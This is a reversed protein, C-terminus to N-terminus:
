DVKIFHSMVTPVKPNDSILEIMYTGIMLDSIPLNVKEEGIHTKIDKVKKGAADMVILSANDTLGRDLSVIVYESAPNPYVEFSLSSHDKKIFNADIYEQIEVPKTENPAKWEMIEVYATAYGSTRESQSWVIQSLASNDLVEFNLVAITEWNDDKRISLGGGTNDNLDISFNIFGLNDDFELQNVNDAQLQEFSELFNIPSYLDMPLDSRSMDKVLSLLQSDYYLRYNQDALQFVGHGDYSIEVSVYLQNNQDDYFAPNLRLTIDTTAQGIVCICACLLTLIAKV